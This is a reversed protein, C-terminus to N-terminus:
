RLGLPVFSDAYSPGGAESGQIDLHAAHCLRRESAMLQPTFKGCPCSTSGQRDSVKVEDKIRATIMSPLHRVDLLDDQVGIGFSGHPTKALGYIARGGRGAKQPHKFKGDWSYGPLSPM